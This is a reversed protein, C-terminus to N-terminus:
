PANEGASPKKESHKRQGAPFDLHFGHMLDSIFIRM